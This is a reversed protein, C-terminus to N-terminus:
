QNIIVAELSFEVEHIADSLNEEWLTNNAFKDGFFVQQLQEKIPGITKYPIILDIIDSKNDINIRIKM